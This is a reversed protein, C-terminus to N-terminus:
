TPRRARGTQWVVLPFEQALEGSLVREAASEIARAKAEDLLGLEHNVQAGARKIRALADILEAPMREGSIRFHELSRQTQAGWLRDSDVLVEGLSDVEVRQTMHLEKSTAVAM